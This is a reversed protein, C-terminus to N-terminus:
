CADSPVFTPTLVFNLYSQLSPAVPISRLQLTVYVTLLTGYHKLAEKSRLPKGQKRHLVVLRLYREAHNNTLPIDTYRLGTFYQEGKSRFRKQLTKVDCCDTELEIMTQLDTLLQGYLPKSISEQGKRRLVKHMQKCKAYLRYIMKALDKGSQCCKEVKEAERILHPWCLQKVVFTHTYAGYADTVAIPPPKGPNKYTELVEVVVKKRRTTALHYLAANRTIFLWVWIIQRGKEDILVHSTEDVHVWPSNLVEKGIDVGVAELEKALAVIGRHFTTTGIKMGTFDCVIAQLQEYSAGTRTRITGVFALLNKGLATRQLTPEASMTKMKCIHCEATYLHNETVTLQIQEPIDVTTKTKKWENGELPITTGCQACQEIFHHTIEDPQDYWFTGQKGKKSGGRRKKTRKKKNKSQPKKKEKKKYLTKSSPQHPSEYFQLKARLRKNEEQVQKYKEQLENLRKEYNAVTKKHEEALQAFKRELAQLKAKMPYVKRRESTYEEKGM